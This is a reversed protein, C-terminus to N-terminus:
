DVSAYIEVQKVKQKMLGLQKLQNNRIFLGGGPNLYTGSISYGMASQSMQSMAPSEIVSTMENAVCDCIVAIYVRKFNSDTLKEDMDIGRDEAYLHLYAEYDDILGAAKSLEETTMARWRSILDNTTVNAAMDEDECFLADM